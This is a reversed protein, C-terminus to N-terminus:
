SRGRKKRSRSSSKITRGRRPKHSSTYSNLDVGNNTFYRRVEDIVDQGKRSKTNRLIHVMAEAVIEHYGVKRNEKYKKTSYKSIKTSYREPLAIMKKIQGELVQYKAIDKKKLTQHLAHGYEHYILEKLNNSAVFHEGSSKKIKKNLQSKTNSLTNATIILSRGFKRNKSDRDVIDGNKNYSYSSHYTLTSNNKVGLIISDLHNGTLEGFKKELDYVTQLMEVVSSLNKRNLFKNLNYVKIGISNMAKLISKRDYMVRGKVNPSLSGRGGM